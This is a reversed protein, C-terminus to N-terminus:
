SSDLALVMLRGWSAHGDLTARFAIVQNLCAIAGGAVIADDVANSRDRALVDPVSFNSHRGATCRSLGSFTSATGAIAAAAVSQM